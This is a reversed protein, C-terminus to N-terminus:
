PHLWAVANKFLAEIQALGAADSAPCDSNTNYVVPMMMVTRQGASEAALVAPDYTGYVRMLVTEGEGAASAWDMDGRYAFNQVKGYPGTMVPHDSNVVVGSYGDLGSGYYDELWLLKWMAETDLESRAKNAQKALDDGVFLLGKGEKVAEELANLTYISPTGSSGGDDYVIVPYYALDQYDVGLTWDEPIVVASLGMEGLFTSIQQLERELSGKDGCFTGNASAQYGSSPIVAVERCDAIGSLDLDPLEEDAEGDCDDDLRNCVESAGPNRTASSDDCDGPTGVYGAPAACAQITRSSDGYGDRDGDVYWVVQDVAGDDAVGDCDQDREDCTELAGAYVDAAADDCDDPSAVTGDPASCAVYGGAPAGHGDGDADVYWMRADIAGDDATGDCDQDRQDCTEVAGPYVDAAADDCDDASAAYGAPSSCATVGDTAGGHGDGDADLFWVPTGEPPPDALVDITGDCDDDAGNCVEVAGPYVGPDRDDCDQQADIGDGDADV